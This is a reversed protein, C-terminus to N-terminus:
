YDGEGVGELYDSHDSEPMDEFVEIQLIKRIGSSPICDISDSSSSSNLKTENGFTCRAWTRVVLKAPGGIFFDYSTKECSIQPSSKM